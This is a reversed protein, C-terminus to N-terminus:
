RLPRQVEGATDQWLENLLGVTPRHQGAAVHMSEFMTGFRADEEVLGITLLLLAAEFDLGTAERLARVPLHADTAEEREKISQRWFDSADALSMGDLGHATLEQYYGLLFPHEAFVEEWTDFTRSCHELLRLVAAYFYLRFHQAATVVSAAREEAEELLM